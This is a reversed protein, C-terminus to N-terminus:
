IRCANIVDRTKNSALGTREKLKRCDRKGEEAGEDCRKGGVELGLREEMWSKKWSVSVMM